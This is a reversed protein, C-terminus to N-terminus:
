PVALTSTHCAPTQPPDNRGDTDEAWGVSLCFLLHTQISYALTSKGICSRGCFFEKSEWVQSRFASHTHWIPERSPLDTEPGISLTELLDRELVVM